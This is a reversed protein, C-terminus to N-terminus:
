DLFLLTVIRLTHNVGAFYPQWGCLITAVRLTHNGGAFYPQWGCLITAVRLTHNGGAFYLKGGAFYPQWGCLIIQWGCLIVQWGCLTVQWGCLTIQWGCHIRALSYNMALNSGLMKNKRRKRRKIKLWIRKAKILLFLAKLWFARQFALIIQSFIFSPPFSFPSSNEKKFKSKIVSSFKCDQLQFHIWCHVLVIM